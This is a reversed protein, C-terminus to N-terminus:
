QKGVTDIKATFRMLTENVVKTILSRMDPSQVMRKISENESVQRMKSYRQKQAQSMKQKTAYSHKRGYMPNLNGQRSNQKEQDKNMEFDTM